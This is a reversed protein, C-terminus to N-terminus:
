RYLLPASQILFVVVEDITSGNSVINGVHLTHSPLIPLDKSPFLDNIIEIAKKVASAYYVSQCGIGPPTAIAIITDNWTNLNYM